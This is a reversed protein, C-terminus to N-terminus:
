GGTYANVEWRGSPMKHWQIHLAATSHGGKLDISARGSAGTLMGSWPTGDENVAELGQEKLAAFIRDLPIERHYERGIAVLMRNVADMNGKKPKSPPPGDATPTLGRAAAYANRRAEAEALGEAIAAHVDAEGGHERLFADADVGHRKAIDAFRALRDKATAVRPMEKALLERAVKEGDFSATSRVADAVGALTNLAVKVTSAVNGPVKAAPAKGQPAPADWYRPDPGPPTWERGMRTLEPAGDPGLKALGRAVLAELHGRPFEHAGVPRRQHAARDFVSLALNTEHHTLGGQGAEKAPAAGRKRRTSQYPAVYSGGRVHGKVEAPMAFLDGAAGGPIAAKLFLVRGVALAKGMM